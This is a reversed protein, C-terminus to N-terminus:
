SSKLIDMIIAIEYNAARLCVLMCLCMSSNYKLNEKLLFTIKDDRKISIAIFIFTPQQLESIFLAEM